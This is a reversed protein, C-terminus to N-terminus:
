WLEYKKIPFSIIKAWIDSSCKLLCEDTARLIGDGVIYFDHNKIKQHGAGGRSEVITGIPYRRKAETLIEENVM